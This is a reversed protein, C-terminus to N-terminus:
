DRDLITAPVRVDVTTGSGTDSHVVLRSGILHARESMGSLGFSETGTAKRVRRAMSDSATTKSWCVSAARTSIRAGRGGPPRRCPARRQLTGGPRHPLPDLEVTPAVTATGIRHGRVLDRVTATRGAETLIQNISAVLGLDDLISPRLGKAISRLEAVTDEVIIRLDALAEPDGDAAGPRRSSPTSRGACTSSPRSRATTSDGPRHPTAGGRSRVRGPRRVGGDPRAAPDRRHRGRLRGADATRMRAAGAHHSDTPVAGTPRRGRVRGARGARGRRREDRGIATPM